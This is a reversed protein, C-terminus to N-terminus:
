YGARKLCELDSEEATDKVERALAEIEASKQENLRKPSYGELETQVFMPARGLRGDWFVDQNRNPWDPLYLVFYYYSTEFRSAGNVLTYVSRRPIYRFGGVVGKDQPGLEILQGAGFPNPPLEKIYGERVLEGVTEPYADIGLNDAQHDDSYKWMAQEIPAYAQWAQEEMRHAKSLRGIELGLLVLILFATLAAVIVFVRGRGAMPCISVSVM